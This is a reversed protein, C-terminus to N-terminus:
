KMMLASKSERFQLAFDAVRTYVERLTETDPLFVIRFFGDKPNTGFGSGHVFLVGKERLLGLVFEEDTGLEGHELNMQAMAYFAGEPKNCRMGSIRNLMEFTIDRQARLRQMTSDLYSPPLSMATKIVHQPPIPACLRADALKRIAAMLDPMLHSNTVMMWGLRWGPALYNKSLSEMTIVPLDEGALSGMPVHTGDFILKHYVEDAIVVLHHQRAVNLMAELTSRSYLAGTPNNPNIIVLLKTRPTIKARLEDADPQWNQDPNQHYKVEVAGLKTAIATYLPYGPAPVLVEDGPELLATFVLDAAESAGYTFIVDEPSTRIGRRAAEEAVAERAQAIGTSPSYGNHGNRIAQIIAEQLAEPPQFGYLSPDGINLYIVKRGQAEIKKAESVINRIAYRYNQTRQAPQYRTPM